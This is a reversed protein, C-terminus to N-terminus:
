IMIGGGFEAYAKYTESTMDEHVQQVLEGGRGKSSFLFYRIFKLIGTSM